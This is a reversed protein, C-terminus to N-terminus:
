PTPAAAILPVPAEPLVQTPEVLRVVPASQSPLDLTTVPAPTAVSAAPGVTEPRWQPTPAEALREARRAAVSAEWQQRIAVADVDTRLGIALGFIGLAVLGAAGSLKLIDGRTFQASMEPAHDA